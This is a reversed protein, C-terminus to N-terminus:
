RAKLDMLGINLLLLRFYCSVLKKAISRHQIQQKASTRAKAAPERSYYIKCTDITLLFNM